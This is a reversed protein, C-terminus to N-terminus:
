GVSRGDNSESDHDYEESSPDKRNWPCWFDSEQAVCMTALVAAFDNLRRARSVELIELACQEPSRLRGEPRKWVFSM